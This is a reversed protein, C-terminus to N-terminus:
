QPVFAADTQDWSKLVEFRTLRMNDGCRISLREHSFLALRSIHRLTQSLSHREEIQKHKNISKVM